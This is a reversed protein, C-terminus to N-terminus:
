KSVELLPVLMNSALEDRDLFPFLDELPTSVMSGDARVKSSVRPGIAQNPLVKVECVAPGETLLVERITERLTSQDDISFDPIKFARALGVISPLTLGSPPDCGLTEKFYGSQSARISAYGNNNIVFFKIPLNLRRVVELEQVNMVFGGDGDVCITRRRAGGLCGGISAPLGYGMSGLGGTAVGRQGRKMKASLWFTDIAAGSSGPIVLDDGCLEECLVETFRYSNVPGSPARYEDLVIPYREKWYSCRQVWEHPVNFESIDIRSQILRSLFIKADVIVAVDPLDGLKAIETADIDIVVKKAARAFQSRDFGTISYDLRTGIAILLDANQIAFNAGRPAVTGPRGFYLPNDDELLDAATWTTLTPIGFSAIFNRFQEEAGAIHIGHGALLVPRKSQSILNLVESIQSSAQSEVGDDPPIFPRLAAEDVLSAQIDLPVDIWVPGPRGDKMFFFAKELELRIHTPDTVRSVYKTLSGVVPIVDLEQPGLQRVGSQGKLDARKVQGSIFIVPTSEFWAGALGTMANTVGPGSTVLCVGFSKSTRAYGEAAISAGQEHLMSVATLKRERLLANNLHMAGGGPLFFVTEAGKSALFSFIFDAVRIV